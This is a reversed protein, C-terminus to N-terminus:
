CTSGDRLLTRREDPLIPHTRTEDDARGLAFTRALGRRAVPLARGVALLAMALRGAVREREDEGGKINATELVCARIYRL